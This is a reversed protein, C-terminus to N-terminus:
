SQNASTGPNCPSTHAYLQTDIEVPQSLVSSGNLLGDMESVLESNQTCRDGTGGVCTPATLAGGASELNPASDQCTPATPATPADMRAFARGKLTVTWRRYYKREPSRYEIDELWKERECRTVIRKTDDPRLKLLKFEPESKLLSNVNNRATPAPSCYKNRSEFEAIMKLLVVALEDDDAGALGGDSKMNRSILRPFCDDPWELNLPERKKGLNSKQHELLLIGNAARTLFLRSRVSNHWATSGSYGEGSGQVSRNRSTNKDVHALLLVACDTTRALSTLSRIFARVQRRQIEDAGYADSANDVVVLGVANSKVFKILEGYTATTNGDTRGEAMFLEPHETADVIHLSDHLELPDVELERCIAALRHRVIHQGDELSVYLTKCAVTKIGFLPRGLATQVALMLAITSKGTGGHAGMLTVVGCPLYDDWIFRPPPSPSKLVDSVSVSILLNTTNTQM